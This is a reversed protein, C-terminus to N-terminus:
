IFVNRIRNKANLVRKVVGCGGCEEGSVQLTEDYKHAKGLATELEEERDKMADELEELISDLDELYKQIEVNGPTGALATLENALRQCEDLVGAVHLDSLESQIAQPSM